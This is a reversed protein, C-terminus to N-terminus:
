NTSMWRGYSQMMLVAYSSLLQLSGPQGYCKVPLCHPFFVALIFVSCDYNLEGLRLAGRRKVALDSMM